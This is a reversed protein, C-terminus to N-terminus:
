ALAGIEARLAALEELLAASADWTAQDWAASDWHGGAAAWPAALDLSLSLTWYDAGLEHVAGTAFHEADFVEGRPQELRCRYRSPKWIDVTTMLDIANVATRGDIEVSRVRPATEFSRVKLVRNALYLLMDDRETQLDVQVFPEIGYLTQGVPDNVVVATAEDRGMIVRTALDARDFPRQWSVPCVDGPVGEVWYGPTEPKARVIAGAQDVTWVRGRQDTITETGGTTISPDLYAPQAPQWPVFYGPIGPDVNGIIGDPPTGPVYTQWDRNRFAINANLDGFVSGGASDATRSLLDAVQGGDDTAILTTSSPLVDRKTPEWQALDLIRGIRASATEGAHAAVAIPKLVARNVEGLADICDILVSDAEEEPLYTPTIKDIFGRFLWRTGYNIHVIGFRIARGPRMTLAAPDESVDPDAWGSANNAYISAVGATFRDNAHDRGYSCRATYCECTIDVWTPDVGAWVAAANDWRATDWKASGVPVRLDGVGLEVVPRVRNTWTFAALTM